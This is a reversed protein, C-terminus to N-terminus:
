SSIHRSARRKKSRVSSNRGSSSSVSSGGRHRTPSGLELQAKTLDRMRLADVPAHGEGDNNFYVWVREAAGLGATRRLWARLMADTYGGNYAPGPGHMRVYVDPATAVVPTHEEGRDYLCFVAGHCRLLRYVDDTWWSEHRFEFVHLLDVPLRELFRALLLDDREFDPPLQYLIPGLHAGLPRIRKYFTELATETGKLRRFHTILRSAKVAFCFKEPARKSWGRVAQESPLRYHTNNLEVTDYIRSYHEFWRSVPLNAPYLRGRWHSYHWGSCGIRYEM